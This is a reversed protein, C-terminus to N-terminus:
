FLLIDKNTIRSKNLYSNALFKIYSSDVANDDVNKIEDFSSVIKRKFKNIKPTDAVDHIEDIGLKNGDVINQLEDIM